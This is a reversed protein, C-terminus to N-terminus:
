RVWGRQLTNIGALIESWPLVIIGKPKDNRDFGFQGRWYNRNNIDESNAHDNNIIARYADCSYEECKDEHEIWRVMAGSRSMSVLERRDFFCCFDIDNPNFKSTTFSGNMWVEVPQAIENAIAFWELAKKLIKGRNPSGTFRDVYLSRFEVFSCNHFGPAIYGDDNFELM